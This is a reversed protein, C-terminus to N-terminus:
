SEMSRWKGNRFPAGDQIEDDDADLDFYEEAASM